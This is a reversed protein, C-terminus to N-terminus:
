VVKQSSEKQDKVKKEAAAKSASIKELFGVIVMMSTSTMTRAINRGESSNPNQHYMNTPAFVEPFRLYRKGRLSHTLRIRFQPLVRVRSGARQSSDKSSQAGLSQSRAMPNRGLNRKRLLAFLTNLIMRHSGLGLPTVPLHQHLILSPISLSSLPSVLGAHRTRFLM